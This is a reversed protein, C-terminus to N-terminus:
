HCCFTPEGSANNDGSSWSYLFRRPTTTERRERPLLAHFLCRNRTMKERVFERNNIIAMFELQWSAHGASIQWCTAHRFTSTCPTNEENKQLEDDCIPPIDLAFNRRMIDGSPTAARDKTRWESKRRPVSLSAHRLPLPTKTRSCWRALSGRDAFISSADFMVEMPSRFRAIARFPVRSHPM